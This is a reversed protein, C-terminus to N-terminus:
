GMLQQHPVAAQSFFRGFNGGSIPVRHTTSAISYIL